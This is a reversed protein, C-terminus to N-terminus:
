RQQAQSPGFAQKCNQRECVAEMLQKSSAMSEAKREAMLTETGGASDRPAESRSREAFALVLQNNQRKDSM